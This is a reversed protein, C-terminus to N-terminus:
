SLKITINLTLSHCESPNFFHPYELVVSCCVYCIKMQKHHILLYDHPFSIVLHGQSNTDVLSSATQILYFYVYLGYNTYEPNLHKYHPVLVYHICTCFEYCCVGYICKLPSTCQVGVGSQFYGTATYM